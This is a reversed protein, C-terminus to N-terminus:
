LPTDSQGPKEPDDWEIIFPGRRESGCDNWTGDRDLVIIREQKYTFDPQGKGWNTYEWPADGDWKWNGDAKEDVAGILISEAKPLFTSSLFDQEAQSTISVLRGGLKAAVALAERRSMPLTVLVYRRGQFEPAPRGGAQGKLMRLMPATEDVFTRVMQIQAALGSVDQLGDVFEGAATAAFEVEGKDLTVYVRALVAPLDVALTALTTSEYLPSLDTLHPCSNAALSQLPCGKLPTLDGVRTGSLTLSTLPMGRLPGIDNVATGYISLERLPMGKLPALDSVGTYALSLSTLPMGRLPALDTVRSGSVDLSALKMHKLVGLDALASRANYDGKWALATLSLKALFGPDTLSVCREINLSKLHMSALPTLDTVAQCDSLTLSTLPLEKLPSLDKMLCQRLVLVNLPIGKLRSLDSIQNGSLLLALEGKPSVSLNAGAGPWAKDLKARCLPIRSDSNRAFLAGLTPAGLRNCLMGVEGLWAGDQGPRNAAKCVRLVLEGDADGPKLRLYEAAQQAAPWAEGKQVLLLALLLRADALAPDYEIGTLLMARASDLDNREILLRATELLAPASQRRDARRGAETREFRRLAHEAKRREELNVFSSVGLVGTLLLVTVLAAGTVTKHRKVFLTVVKWASAEEVSTLFGTQYAEIDNQMAKVTPYRHRPAVMLAKMAIASLVSPVTGGPCHKLPLPPLQVARRLGPRRGPPLRPRTAAVVPPDIAGSTTKKLIEEVTEGEVPPRLTLINYLIAGLSYIDCREDTLDSDGAAQEPAMYGPTGM